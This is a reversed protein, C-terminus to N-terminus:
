AWRPAARGGETSEARRRGESMFSEPGGRLTLPSFLCATRPMHRSSSMTNRFATTFREKNKSRSFANRLESTTHGSGTGSGVQGRPDVKFPVRQTASGGVELSQDKEACQASWCWTRFAPRDRPAVKWVAPAMLPMTAMRSIPGRISVKPRLGTRMADRQPPKTLDARCSSADRTIPWGRSCFATTSAAQTTKLRVLLKMRAAVAMAASM